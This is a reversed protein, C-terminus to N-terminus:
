FLVDFVVRNFFFYDKVIEVRRSGNNLRYFGYCFFNISIGRFLRKERRM